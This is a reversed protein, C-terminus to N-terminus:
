KLVVVPLSLGYIRALSTYVIDPLTELYRVTGHFRENGIRGAYSIIEKEGISFTFQLNPAKYWEFSIEGDAEPAIEPRAARPIRLAASRAVEITRHSVPFSKYLEVSLFPLLPFLM